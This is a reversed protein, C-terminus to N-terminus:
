PTVWVGLRMASADEAARKPAQSAWRSQMICDAARDFDRVGIAEIMEHFGLLGDVGMTFSMDIIVWQRAQSLIRFWPLEVLRISILDVDSRLLSAVDTESLPSVELDHGVGITMAGPMENRATCDCVFAVGGRRIAGGCKDCYPAYRVGEHARLISWIDMM